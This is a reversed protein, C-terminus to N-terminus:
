SDQTKKKDRVARYIAIYALHKLMNQAQEHPVRDKIVDDDFLVWKKSREQFLTMYHGTQGSDGKHM